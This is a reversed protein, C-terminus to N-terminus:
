YQGSSLMVLSCAEVTQINNENLMQELEPNETGPNFIVRRPKLRLIYDAYYPQRRPNIYLLVTDVEKYSPKGLDIEVGSVDGKRLGIAKVPLDHSVLRRIAMNSYRYPKLSAGIVLNEGM